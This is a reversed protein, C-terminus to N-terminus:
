STLIGRQKLWKAQLKVGDVKPLMLYDVDLELLNDVVSFDVAHIACPVGAKKCRYALLDNANEIRLASIVLKAQELDADQLV